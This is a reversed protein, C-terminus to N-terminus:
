LILLKPKGVRIGGENDIFFLALSHNWSLHAECKIEILLPLVPAKRFITNLAWFKFRRQLKEKEQRKKAMSPNSRLAERKSL